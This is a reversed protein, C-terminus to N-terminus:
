ITKQIYCDPDESLYDSTKAFAKGRCGGCIHRNSCDSCKGKLRGKDKLEAFVKSNNYIEELSNQRINGGSVPVFPCPWLDGNPKLYLLGWGASCGHFPHKVILNNDTTSDRKILHPWYQPCAVPEIITISNKQLCRLKSVLQRNEEPTLASANISSGRGICILQYCLLIDVQMKNCFDVINELSDLNDKMATFNIQVVIGAKKCEEIAKLVLNFANSNRRIENHISPETSDLSLAIGKVGLKKLELVRKADILTGNSAIVTILGKKKSFLLLEDIDPRMLPEGGSFVLMQFNRLRSLESIFKMGEKTTLEDPSAQDSTAHCHKCRLNCAETVEWVAHRGFGICGMGVAGAAVPISKFSKTAVWRYFHQWQTAKKLLLLSHFQRLLNNVSYFPRLSM